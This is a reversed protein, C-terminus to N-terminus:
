AARTSCFEILGPVIGTLHNDKNSLFWNGLLYPTGVKYGSFSLLRLGVNNHMSFTDKYQLADERGLADLYDKILKTDGEVIYEFFEQRLALMPKTVENHRHDPQLTNLDVVLGDMSEYVDMAETDGIALDIGGKSPKSKPNISRILLGALSDTYHVVKSEDGKPSGVIAVNTYMNQRRLIERDVENEAYLSGEMLQKPSIPVRGLSILNPMQELISGIFLKYILIDAEFFIDEGKTLDPLSNIFMINPELADSSIRVIPIQQRSSVKGIPTAIPVSSGQNDVNLLAYLEEELGPEMVRGKRLVRRTGEFQTKYM